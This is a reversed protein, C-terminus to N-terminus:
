LSSRKVIRKGPCAEDEFGCKFCCRPALPLTRKKRATVRIPNYSRWRFNESGSFRLTHLHLM